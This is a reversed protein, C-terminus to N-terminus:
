HNTTNSASKREEYAKGSIYVIFGRLNLDNLETEVDALDLGLIDAATKYGLGEQVKSVLAIVEASTM